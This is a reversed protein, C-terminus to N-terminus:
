WLTLTALQAKKVESLTLNAKLAVMSELKATKIGPDLSFHKPGKLVLTGM